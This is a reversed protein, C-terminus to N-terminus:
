FRVALQAGYETSDNAPEIGITNGSVAVASQEIDWYRFFPEFVWDVEKGNKAIRIAGRVGYGSDQDNKIDNLGSIATDSLYSKQRGKWFIDYEATLGILWGNGLDIRTEAGVPSYYYNSKRRYGRAGTTTTGRLDDYLYRYGFGIYPTLTASKGVEFDYGGMGRLELMYDDLNDLSGSVPSTYDVQGYSFKGEGKLMVNGTNPKAWDRYVYSGVVGYMLGTEEM